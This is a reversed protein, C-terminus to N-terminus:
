KMMGILKKVPHILLKKWKPMHRDDPLYMYTKLTRLAREESLRRRVRFFALTEVITVKELYDEVVRYHPRTAYDHILVFNDKQMELACVIACAVRFRGDILCINPREERFMSLCYNPWLHKKHDNKPYGWMETEGINVYNAILKKKGLAEIISPRRLVQKLFAKDSEITIVKSIAGEKCALETSGGAGYEGYIGGKSLINELEEKERPTMVINLGIDNLYNMGGPNTKLIM